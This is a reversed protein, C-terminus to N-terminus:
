FYRKYNKPKRKPPRKNSKLDYYDKCFPKYHDIMWQNYKVGFNKLPQRHFHFDIYDLTERLKQAKSKRQTSSPPKSM